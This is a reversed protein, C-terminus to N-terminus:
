TPLPQGPEITIPQAIIWLSFVTYGIMLIVLPLGALIPRGPADRLALRHSLVIAAVHGLVIAGVSLYWVLSIPIWDLTPAVPANPNGILEPVWVMGQIFLTLYHAILYGGTIPLLTAAYSGALSGFSAVDAHTSTVRTLWAALSFAALFLMWVVFIGLTGIVVTAWYFGVVGGVPPFLVNLFTGWIITEHLGDFTVGALALVIFAVDSWGSRRTETLGAFWPRLETRREGPEAAGACEPCDVCRTPDCAEECGNCVEADTTRRGIPGVRGLWAFLVEFLEANRLWAVKGFAFMGVLTLVTYGVLLAGVTGAATAAPLVLEGWVAAFLLFVAPWRALRAPYRLGLDLGDLGILRAGRELLAFLSRFPSVSPWPNGLVVTVIPVGVWLVVWFLVGPVASIDGIVFATWLAWVFWVLGLVQLGFSARRSITSPIALVRYTPTPRAPRVIFVSVVFSAAVATGAALLYLDLPVPLQFSAGIAHAAVPLPALLLMGLGAAGTLVRRSM